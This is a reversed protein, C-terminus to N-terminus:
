SNQLNHLSVAFPPHNSLRLEMDEWIERTRGKMEISGFPEGTALYCTMDSGDWYMGDFQLADLFKLIDKISVNNTHTM